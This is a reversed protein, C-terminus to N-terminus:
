ARRPRRGLEQRAEIARDQAATTRQPERRLRESGRAAAPGGGLLRRGALLAMLLFGLIGLAPLLVQPRLLDGLATSHSLEAGLTTAIVLGPLTGTATGLIYDRTSVRTAGLAWNLPPALFLVLRLGVVTLFGHRQLHRELAALRSFRTQLAEQVWRQATYRVLLFTASTGLITGALAYAFGAVQGFLAGALAVFLLEPGPVFFGLVFVLIFAIPGFPGWADVAARMGAVSLLGSGLVLWVAAVLIAVAAAALLIRAWSPLAWRV